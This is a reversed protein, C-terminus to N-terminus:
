KVGANELFRRVSKVAGKDAEKHPHPMHFNAKVGNLRVGVRSGDGEIIEGGLHVFLQEIDKWKLSSPIPDQFILELTKLRKSNM